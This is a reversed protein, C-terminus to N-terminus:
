RTRDLYKQLMEMMKDMREELRDLRKEIDPNMAAPPQPPQPVGFGHPVVRAPVFGNEPALLVSYKGGQGPTLGYSFGFAGPKIKGLQIKVKGLIKGVEDLGLGKLQPIKLELEKLDMQKTQLERLAKELAEQAEQLGGELTIRAFPQFHGTSDLSYGLNFPSDADEEIKEVVIELSLRTGKRLVELKLIDGAKKQSLAKRIAEGTAPTKGDVAVVAL